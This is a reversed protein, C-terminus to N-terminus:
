KSSMSGIADLNWFCDFYDSPTKTVDFPPAKGRDPAKVPTDQVKWVKKVCEYNNSIAGEWSHMYKKLKTVEDDRIAKYQTGFMGGQIVEQEICICHKGNAPSTHLPVM